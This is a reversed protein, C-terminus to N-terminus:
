RAAAAVPPGFLERGVTSGPSGVEILHDRALFLLQIDEPLGEFPSTQSRHAHIAQWRRDLHATTDLVHTVQEDPTGLDLNRLYASDPDVGAVHDAWRSMTSRPLCHLFVPLGVQAGVQVTADRVVVHDRHGDGGDLSLLVHPHFDDVARRVADQVLAPAAGALSGPAPDGDMGSDLFELVEVRDVGLTRASARLEEERLTGLGTPPVVVGATVEGAEGRTACLLMIEADSATAHLLLSGCGFAEDDPHAVVVLVRAGDGARRHDDPSGTMVSGGLISRHAADKTAKGFTDLDGM